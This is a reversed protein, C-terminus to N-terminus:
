SPTLAGPGDAGARWRFVKSAELFKRRMTFSFKIPSGATLFAWNVKSGAEVMLSEYRANGLYQVVAGIDTRGRPGNAILVTVGREELLWRREPAAASTGVVLLDNQSGSVMKSTLPIRLQSDLVIRLLPRSRELGSRDTICAITKSCRASAPLFRTPFTAFSNCM